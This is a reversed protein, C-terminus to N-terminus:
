AAGQMTAQGPVPGTPPIGGPVPGGAVPTQGSPGSQPTGGGGGSNMLEVCEAQFQLILDLRDQVVDDFKDTIWMYFDVATLAADKLDMQPIPGRYKGTTVIASLRSRVLEHSSMEMEDDEELDPFDLLRKAQQPKLWGANALDMVQQMRQGPASALNSVPWVHMVTPADITPFEIEEVERRGVYIVQKKKSARAVELLLKAEDLCFEEYAQGFEAFRADENDLAVEQAKGSKLSPDKQGSASLMNIGAEQFSSQILWLLHQFKEPHVTQAVAITPMAGTYELIAGIENSFHSKVIKSGREVLVRFNSGLHFSRQIELLLKNIELQKGSLLQALGSGYWGLIPTAYRIWAMPFSDNPLDADNGRAFELTENEVVIASTGDDATDASPLHYAETIEIQDNSLSSMQFNDVVAAKSNMIADRKDTWTEAAVLRDVTRYHYLTRPNGYKAESDNVYVEPCFVRELRPNGGIPLGRVGGTGFVLADRVISRNLRYVNNEYFLGETFRNLQKAQKQLEWSGGSTLHMPRPKSKIIKACLTDIVSRIINVSLPAGAYASSLTYNGAGFGQVLDSGYLCMHILDRDSRYSQSERLHRTLAFITQHPPRVPNGDDDVLWWRSDRLNVDAM